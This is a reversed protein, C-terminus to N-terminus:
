YKKGENQEYCTKPRNLQRDVWTAADRRCNNRRESKQVFM